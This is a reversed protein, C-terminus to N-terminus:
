EEVKVLHQVQKLLAEQLQMILCKLQRTCKQLDWQLSQRKTNRFQASLSKVLTVKITDAM